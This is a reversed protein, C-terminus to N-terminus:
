KTMKSFINKKEHFLQKCKKCTKFRYNRVFISVPMPKYTISVTSERKGYVSSPFKVTGTAATGQFM